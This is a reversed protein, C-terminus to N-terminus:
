RNKPTTLARGNSFRADLRRNSFFIPRESFFLSFLFNKRVRQIFIIPPIPSIPFFFPRRAAGWRFFHFSDAPSFNFRPPRKASLDFPRLIKIERTSVRL